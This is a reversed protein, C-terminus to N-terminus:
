VNHSIDDASAMELRQAQGREQAVAADLLSKAEELGQGLRRHFNLTLLDIPWVKSLMPTYMKSMKGGEGAEVVGALVAYNMGGSLKSLSHRAKESQGKLIDWPMWSVELVELHQYDKSHSGQCFGLMVTMVCEGTIADWEEVDLVMDKNVATDLRLGQVVVCQIEFVYVELFRELAKMVREMTWTPHADYKSRDFMHM